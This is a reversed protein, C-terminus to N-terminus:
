RARNVLGRKPQSPAQPELAPAELGVGGSRVFDELAAPSFFYRRGIKVVPVRGCRVDYYLSPLSRRLLPAAERADILLQEM